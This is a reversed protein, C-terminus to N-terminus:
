WLSDGRLLHKSPHIVSDHRSKFAWVDLSRTGHSNGFLHRDETYDLGIIKVQGQISLTTGTKSLLATNHQFPTMDQRLHRVSTVGKAATHTALRTSIVIQSYHEIASRRQIVHGIGCAVALLEERLVRLGGDLELFVVGGDLSDTREGVVVELVLTVGVDGRAEFADRFTKWAGRHM